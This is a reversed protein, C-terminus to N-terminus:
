RSASHASSSRRRDSGAARAAGSATVCGIVRGPEPTGLGVDRLSSTRGSGAVQRLGTRGVQRANRELRLASGLMVLFGVFALLYSTSLTTVM